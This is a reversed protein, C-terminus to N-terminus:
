SRSGHVPENVAPPALRLAWRAAGVAPSVDLMRIEALPAAGRLLADLANDLLPSRGFVGGFKALGFNEKELKLRRIVSAALQALGMAATFLIERAADDEEAAAEVVVPFIRRFVEDPAKAIRALLEEWNPTELAAPIMESLLPVPALGDRARAVATVARRGVDFASGEDSIWPGLGGARVIQGAANRGMCISGTGAILVVGPGTGAAAELAVASDTTVHVDASPFEDVLFAMIRKVVRANGAGAVGACVGRLRSAEVGAASLAQDAAARLNGLAAEFRIRLPNSPGSDGRAVLQGAADLLVCETKSGGGDFGLYYAM